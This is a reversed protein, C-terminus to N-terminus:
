YFEKLARKIKECKDGTTIKRLKRLAKVEIISVMQKSIGLERAVEAQTMYYDSGGVLEKKNRRYLEMTEICGGNAIIDDFVKFSEIDEDILLDIPERSNFMLLGM